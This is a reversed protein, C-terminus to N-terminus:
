RAESPYAVQEKRPLHEDQVGVRPETLGQARRAAEARLMAAISHKSLTAALNEPTHGKKTKAWVDAGHELLLLVMADQGGMIAYHLATKGDLDRESLDAGHQILALAVLAHGYVAAHVLPTAGDAKASVEAGKSLLLRAVSAHGQLSASHLPTLGYDM